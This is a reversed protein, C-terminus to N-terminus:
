ISDTKSNEIEKMAKDVLDIRKGIWEMVQVTMSNGLAAYRKSDTAGPIDTYGDPFGQLRECELPTLRRIIVKEKVIGEVLLPARAGKTLPHCPDGEKPNSFNGPSTVQTEDYIVQMVAHKDSKTLTPAEEEKIGFGNGSGNGDRGIVKAQIGFCGTLKNTDHMVYQDPHRSVTFALEDSGLYGKGGGEKGGREKFVHCVANPGRAILAPNTETMVISPDYLANVGQNFAARDIVIVGEQHNDPQHLETLVGGGSKAQITGSIEDNVVSNRCDISAVNGVVLAGPAGLDQGSQKSLQKTLCPATETIKVNEVILDTADKYDRKKLASATEDGVYDGFGRQRYGGGCSNGGASAEVDGATSERKAGSPTFDRRLSDQEFLVAVPPRWDKGIHGVIFIRRRRQPVGFYKSDFVRWAISYFEGEIAGAKEFKQDAIDRGTFASILCAFDSSNGSGDDESEGEEIEADDESQSTLVGPVNEWVFWKPRKEILIRVFELALNSREDRLGERLGAISFAQCPTGGVLLEIPKNQYTENESLKTMDGLNPIEPYHNLLVESPFDIKGKSYDFEPDYQSFWQPEWGLPHWATTAAEIGSCVSGYKM